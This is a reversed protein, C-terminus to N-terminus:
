SCQQYRPYKRIANRRDSLANSVEFQCDNTNQYLKIFYASLKDLGHIEHIPDKFVIDNAYVSELLEAAKGDPITNIVDVYNKILTNM